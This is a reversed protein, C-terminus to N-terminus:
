TTTGNGRAHGELSRLWVSLQFTPMGLLPRGAVTSLIKCYGSGIKARAAPRAPRRQAHVFSGYRYRFERRPYEGPRDLGLADRHHVGKAEAGAKGALKALGYHALSLLTQGCPPHPRM